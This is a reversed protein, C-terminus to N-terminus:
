VGSTEADRRENNGGEQKANLSGFTTGKPFYISKIAYSRLGYYELEVIEGEKILERIAQSYEKLNFRSPGVEEMMKMALEVGRLGQHSNVCFNISTKLPIEKVELPFRAM